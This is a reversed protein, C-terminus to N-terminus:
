GPRNNWCSTGTGSCGSTQQSKQTPAEELRSSNGGEQLCAMLVDRPMNPVHRAKRLVCDALTYVEVM